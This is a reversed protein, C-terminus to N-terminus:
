FNDQNYKVDARKIMSQELMQSIANRMQGEQQARQQGAVAQVFNPDLQNTNRKLVTIFYVGGQGKIGPSVANLQFSQNFAYGAVKPEYGLGTIYGGGLVLSDTQQVQQGSSSAIADLSAAGGFKKKIEEAMKEEKVRQELMPRNTTTIGTTGKEEVAALKAVVYRQEGLQFVKSVDGVKADFAWRVVERAPGLGTIMFNNVKINEGVRRDMNQKKITADFEAGTPNKGAFENAKGYIANVTSDSPALNKTITALQVSSGRGIQDMVEIYFHASMNDNSIKIKKKDGNAGDFIADGFEKPLTPRQQLTFWVEGGKDKSGQDDSYKAIASDWKMGASIAGMATDLKKDAATDSMIENGRDKTRVMIYRCKVSDALDKKDVVKTLKYGGNEFYPGYVTGVSLGMITDAYRSMFTRKNQYVESYANLEDSKGNVFAKNDKTNTFEDKVQNLADLQRATDASSPIIDFSVYEITRTPQDAQFMAAHRKIYDKIDEDSVKVDTVTTYPVKVYKISAMSNQDALNRKIVYLPAYASGGFLANFKNVRSMRKVYSKVTEWQERLKGEPDNKQPDKTIADEFQKIISPDFQNTQQNIFIQQGNIQFQRVLPDAGEGYILEKLEDTSTQIGLKDCQEGAITEYVLRQVIQENMQARTQDDLPRNKNFMGYLIEYEKLRLQYEKPDIKTGNIKMVSSDHGGFLNGLTGNRADSIIFGILAVAIVGGAIKGYRNRITQIVSM